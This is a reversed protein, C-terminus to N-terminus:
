IFEATQGPHEARDKCLCRYFSRRPRNTKGKLHRNREAVQPPESETDGGVGVGLVAALWAAGVGHCPLERCQTTLASSTPPFRPAFGLVFWSCLDPPDRPSPPSAFGARVWVHEEAGGDGCLPLSSFFCLASPLVCRAVECFQSGARRFLRTSGSRPHVLRPGSGARRDRSQVGFIARKAYLVGCLRLRGKDGCGEQAEREM